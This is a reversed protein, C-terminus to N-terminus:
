LLPELFLGVVNMECVVFRGCEKKINSENIQNTGLHTSVDKM